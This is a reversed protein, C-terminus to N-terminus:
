SISFRLFICLPSILLTTGERDTSLFHQLYGRPRSGRHQMSTVQLGDESLRSRKRWSLFKGQEKRKTHRIESTDRKRMLGM